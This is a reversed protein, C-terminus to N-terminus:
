IDGLAVRGYFSIYRSKEISEPEPDYLIRTGTDYNIFSGFGARILFRNGSRFELETSYMSELSNQLFLSTRLSLKRTLNMQGEALFSLVNRYGPDELRSTIRMRGTGNDDSLSLLLLPDGNERLIMGESIALGSRFRERAMARVFGQGEEHGSKFSEVADIFLSVALDPHKWWFTLMTEILGPVVEGSRFLM